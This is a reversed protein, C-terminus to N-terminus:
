DWGDVVVRYITTPRPEDAYFHEDIRLHYSRKDCYALLTQYGRTESIDSMTVGRDATHTNKLPEGTEDTLYYIVFGEPVHGAGAQTHQEVDDGVRAALQELQDSIASLIRARPDATESTM